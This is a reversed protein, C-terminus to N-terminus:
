KICARRGARGGAHRNMKISVKCNAFVCNAGSEAQIKRSLRQISPLLHVPCQVTQTIGGGGGSQSPTATAVSPVAFPPCRVLGGLPPM